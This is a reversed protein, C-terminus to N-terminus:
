STTLGDFWPVKFQILPDQELPWSTLTTTILRLIVPTINESKPWAAEKM